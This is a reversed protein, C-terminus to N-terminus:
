ELQEKIADFIGPFKSACFKYLLQNYRSNGVRSAKSLLKYDSPHEIRLYNNFRLLMDELGDVTNQKKAMLLNDAFMEVSLEEHEKILNELERNEIEKLTSTKQYDNKLAAILMACINRAGDYNQVFAMKEYIFELPYEKVAWLAQQNSFSFKRKLVDVIEEQGATLTSSVKKEPIKNQIYNLPEQTLLIKEKKKRREVLFKIGVVKRAIKKFQPEVRIDAYSNVEDIAVDLVRRKFDKYQPYKEGAVGLLERLLRYDFWPTQKVNVYRVCNEYLALGYKSRFNAQYGINIAAYIKPDALLERMHYSYSYEIIGNKISASALVTSATWNEGSLTSDSLVNWEIVLKILGLLADKIEAYNHGKYSLYNCLDGISMTHVNQNKITKYAHFYLVNSVKNQLLSLTNVKHITAVHKFLVRSEDENEFTCTSINDVPMSGWLHVGNKGSIDSILGM